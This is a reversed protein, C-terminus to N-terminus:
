LRGYRAIRGLLRASPKPSRVQTDRDVQVLGFTPGFGFVWEFNDLLSWHMYGVVPVGRAIVAHLATLSDSIFSARVKDDATAIGHETIFVPLNTRAHAYEAAGALSAPYIEAGLQNLAAGPPAPLIGSAGFVTRDYNQVAIFDDGQSAAFWPEYVELRKKDRLVPDAVAQDDSLAISVGVKVRSSRSRIAARAQRHSELLNDRFVDLEEPLISTFASYQGVGSAKAAAARMARKIAQFEPPLNGWKLLHEINPENITVAYRLRDGMHAAVRECYRAFLNPSDSDLWGNRMAFWRPASFHNFTTVPTIGRELCGDVISRYQDLYATSFQGPEPEIRAWEFSFRFSRLGLEKVLDLDSAWRHLFDCADGSRERYISPRVQELLWIDSSVSNGEIQYGSTSAGWLFREPFGRTQSGARATGPLLASGAVGAGAAILERRSLRPRRGSKIAKM